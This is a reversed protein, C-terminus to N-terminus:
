DLKRYLLAKAKSFPSNIDLKKKQNGRMMKMFEEFDIMGDNNTDVEKVMEEIMEHTFEEQVFNMELVKRMEEITIKGDGDLDFVRFAAKCVAEQEYLKHDISAAIFETYDITGNGDTDLEELIEIIEDGHKVNMNALGASVEGITLVGDANKDLASFIEHLKGIDKETMQYAVVTLALKKLKMHRQFNRFKELLDGGLKNTLPSEQTMAAQNYYQIWTHQLAEVASLRKRPEFTLLGRILGKAHDSIKGWYKPEFAYEGIKVKRLIEKNDKGHFPPFGSLLIFLIVGASWLDCQKDYNGFLIEPAVYYPTGVVSSFKHNKTCKAAFGWDIVKLASLPSPDSYLVNEPKLDRHMVDNAHCYAIASLIQKMISAAYRESFHGSKIIRDFLEGGTCLEMVLYLDKEDEFVEFLRIINPHDLRKMILIERKLRTINEIKPKYVIKVARTTGTRLDRAAVVSGYSGKGLSKINVDYYDRLSASGLLIEQKIISSRHFIPRMSSGPSGPINVSSRRRRESSAGGEMLIAKSMTETSLQTSAETFSKSTIIYKGSETTMDAKPLSDPLPSHDQGVKRTGPKACKTCLNLFEPKSSDVAGEVDIWHTHTSNPTQQQQNNGNEALVVRIPDKYYHFRGPVRRGPPTSPPSGETPTTVSEM